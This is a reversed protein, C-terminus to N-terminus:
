NTSRLLRVTSTLPEIGRLEVGPHERLQPSLTGTITAELTQARKQRHKSTKRAKVTHSDVTNAANVGNQNNHESM